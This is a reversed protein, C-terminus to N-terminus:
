AVTSYVCPHKKRYVLVAAQKAQMNKTIIGLGIM